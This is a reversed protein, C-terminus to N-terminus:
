VDYGQSCRHLLAVARDIAYNETLREERAFEILKVIGEREEPSALKFQLIEECAMLEVGDQQKGEEFAKVILERSANVQVLDMAYGHWYHNARLLFRRFRDPQREPDGSGAFAKAAEDCRRKIANYVVNPNGPV